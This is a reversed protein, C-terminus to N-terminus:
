INVEFFLPFKSDLRDRLANNMRLVYSVDGAESGAVIFGVCRRQGDLVLSGSDGDVSFAPEGAIPHVVALDEYALQSGPVAQTQAFRGAITRGRAPSYHYLTEGLMMEASRTSIPTPALSHGLLVEDSTVGALLAVSFDFWPTVAGDQLEALHSTTHDDV